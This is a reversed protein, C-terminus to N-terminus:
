LMTISQCKPKPAGNKLTLNGSISIRYEDSTYFPYVQHMLEAPFLCLCGEMKRDVPISFNVIQGLCNQYTFSFAGALPDHSDLSRPQRKEEDINYPVSLWLVFSYVGSHRHPPNFDHKAQFNVWLDIMHLETEFEASLNECTNHRYVVPHKTQLEWLLPEVVQLMYKECSASLKVSHKINGALLRNMSKDTTDLDSQIVKVEKSIPELQKDNLRTM